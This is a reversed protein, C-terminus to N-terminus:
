PRAAGDLHLEIDVPSHEAGDCDRLGNGNGLVALEIKKNGSSPIGHDASLRNLQRTDIADIEVCDVM